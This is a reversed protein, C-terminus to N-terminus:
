VTYAYENGCGLGTYRLVAIESGEYAGGLSDLDDLDLCLTLSCVCGDTGDQALFSLCLFRFEPCVDLFALFVVAFDLAESGKTGKHIEAAYVTHYMGRLQGPSPDVMRGLDDADAVLEVYVHLGKIGFLASDGEAVLGFLHVRPCLEHVLIPFAVHRIHANDAQHREACKRLDNGAAVTQDVDALDRVM